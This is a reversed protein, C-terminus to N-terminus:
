VSTALARRASAGSQRSRRAGGKPKAYSVYVFYVLALMLAGLGLVSVEWVLQAHLAVDDAKAAEFSRAAAPPARELAQPRTELTGITAQEALTSTLPSSPEGGSSLRSGM